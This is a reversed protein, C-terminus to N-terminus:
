YMGGTDAYEGTSTYDEAGATPSSTVEYSNNLRANEAKNREIVERINGLKLDIEEQTDYVSPLSAVVVDRDKDTLTGVEGLARIVLSSLGKVQGSYVKTNADYGLMGKTTDKLGKFRAQLGDQVPHRAMTMREMVDLINSAANLQAIKKIQDPGIKQREPAEPAFEGVGFMLNAYKIANGLNSLKGGMVQSVLAKYEPSSTISGTNGGLGMQTPMASQMGMGMPTSGQMSSRMPIPNQVDIPMRGMGSQPMGGMSPASAMSPIGTNPTQLPSGTGALFPSLAQMQQPNLNYAM